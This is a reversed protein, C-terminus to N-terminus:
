TEPLKGERWFKNLLATLNAIAAEDLHKLAKNTVEDPRAAYLCNLEHVATQLEWTEIDRDPNENVTGWYDPHTEEPHERLYKDNIRKHM